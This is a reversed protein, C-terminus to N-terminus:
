SPQKCQERQCGAIYIIAKSFACLWRNPISGLLIISGHEKANYYWPQTTTAAIFSTQRDTGISKKQTGWSAKQSLLAIVSCYYGLNLVESSADVGFSVCQM